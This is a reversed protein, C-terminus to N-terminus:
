SGLFTKLSRYEELTFLSALDLIVVVQYGSRVTGKIFNPRLGDSVSRPAEINDNEVRLPSGTSDVILGTSINSIKVVLIRTERTAPQTPFGLHRRLDVVPIRGGRYSILGEVFVPARLHQMLPQMMNVSEVDLINFAYASNEIYFTLLQTDSSAQASTAPPPPATHQVPPQAHYTSQPRYPERTTFSTPQTSHIVTSIGNSRDYVARKSPNRLTTYAVNVEQMKRNAEPSRNLDPHYLLALRRYAADIIEQDVGPEIELITYFNDNM